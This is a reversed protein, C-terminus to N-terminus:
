LLLDAGKRTKNTKRFGLGGLITNYKLANRKQIHSELENNLQSIEEIFFSMGEEDMLLQEFLSNDHTIKYFASLTDEFLNLSLVQENKEETNNDQADLLTLTNFLLMDLNLLGESSVDTEKLKHAHKNIRLHIKNLTKKQKKYKRPLLLSFLKNKMKKFFVKFEEITEDRDDSCLSLILVFMYFGFLPSVVLAVITLIIAFFTSIEM